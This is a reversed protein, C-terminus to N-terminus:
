IVSSSRIETNKVIDSFICIYYQVPYGNGVGPKNKVWSNLKPRRCQLCIRWQAVLFAWIYKYILVFDTWGSVVSGNLWSCIFDLIDNKEGMWQYEIENIKQFKRSKNWFFKLQKNFCKQSSQQLYYRFWRQRSIM